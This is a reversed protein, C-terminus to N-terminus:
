LQKKLAESFSRNNTFVVENNDLYEKDIYKTISVVSKLNAGLYLRLKHFGRGWNNEIDYMPFIGINFVNVLYHKMSEENYHEIFEANKFDVYVLDKKSIGLFYLKFNKNNDIEILADLVSFLNYATSKSGLWGINILKNAKQNIKTPKPMDPVYGYIVQCDKKFNTKIFSSLYENDVYVFDALSFLDKSLQLGLWNSSWIADDIDFSMKKCFVKLLKTLKINYPKVLVIENVNKHVFKFKLLLDLYGLLRFMLTKRKFFVSSTHTFGKRKYIVSRVYHSPNRNFTVVVNM